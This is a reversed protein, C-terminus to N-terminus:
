QNRCPPYRSYIIQKNRQLMKMCLFPFVVDILQILARYGFVLMIVIVILKAIHCLSLHAVPLAAPLNAENLAVSKQDRGTEPVAYRQDAFVRLQIRERKMRGEEM